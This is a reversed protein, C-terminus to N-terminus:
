CSKGLAKNIGPAMRSGIQNVWFRLTQAVINLRCFTCDLDFQGMKPSFNKLCNQQFKGTPTFAFRVKKNQKAKTTLDCSVWQAPIALTGEKMDIAKQILSTKVRIRAICSASRVNIITKVAAAKRNNGLPEPNTDQESGTLSLLLDMEQEKLQFPIDCNIKPQKTAGKEIANKTAGMCKEIATITRKVHAPQSTEAHTANASIMAIILVLSINIAHRYQLFLIHKLLVVNQAEGARTPKHGTKNNGAKSLPNGSRM